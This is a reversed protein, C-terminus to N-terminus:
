KPNKYDKKVRGPIPQDNGIFVNLNQRMDVLWLFHVIRGLRDAKKTEFILATSNDLVYANIQSEDEYEFVNFVNNQSDMIYLSSSSTTLTYRLDDTIDLFVHSDDYDVTNIIEFGESYMNLFKNGEDVIDVVVSNTIETFKYNTIEGNITLNSTNGTSIDYKTLVNNNSYGIYEGKNDLRINSSSPNVNVETIVNSSFDYFYVTNQSKFVAQGNNNFFVDQIPRSVLRSNSGGEYIGDPPNRLDFHKQEM